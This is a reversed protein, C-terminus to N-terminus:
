WGIKKEGDKNPKKVVTKGTENGYEDRHVTTTTTHGNDEKGSGANRARTENTTANKSRTNADQQRIGITDEWYKEKAALEAKDHTLQDQKLKILEKQQDIDAKQKQEALHQKWAALGAARNEDLIQKEKMLYNIYKDNNAEREKRQKELKAQHKASLSQKEDYDNPAGQTTFYMNAVARGLDSIGSVIGQSREKRERLKRQEDNEIKMAERQQQLYSLINDYGQLTGNDNAAPTGNDTTGEDFKYTLKADFGKGVPEGFGNKDAHPLGEREPAAISVKKAAEMQKRLMKEEPTM